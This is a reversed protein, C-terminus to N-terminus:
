DRCPTEAPLVHAGLSRAIHAEAEVSGLGDLLQGIEDASAASVRVGSSTIPRPELRSTPRGTCDPATTLVSVGPRRDRKVLRGLEHEDASAPVGTPSISSAARRARGAAQRRASRDRVPARSAARALGRDAAHDGGVEGAAAADQGAGRAVMHEAHSADVPPALRELGAAPHHLVDGAVIEAPREGAGPAREGDHGLDGELHKRRRRLGARQEAEAQGIGVATSAIHRAEARGELDGAGHMHLGGSALRKESWSM